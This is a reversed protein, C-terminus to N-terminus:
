YYFSTLKKSKAMMYMMEGAIMGVHNVPKNKWDYKLVPGKMDVQDGIKLSHLHRSMNGQPYDKVVFDM